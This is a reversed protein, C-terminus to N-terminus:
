RVKVRYTFMPKDDAIVHVLYTGRGSFKHQIIQTSTQADLKSPSLHVPNDAIILSIPLERGSNNKIHLTLKKDVTEIELQDPSQPLVKYRYSNSYVIPGNLFTKLPPTQDLLSWKTDAPYHNRIFYEPNSLFYAEDYKKIFNKNTLDIAGSAWTADCLYWKNNLQVATWSHNIVGDGGINAQITRGYGDVIEARIGALMSLERILYAYGTCVTRQKKLLTEFMRAQMKTNWVKLENANKLKGRNRQNTTFLTYDNEINDCVWKYIARFKMVEDPLDNTLRHSLLPLNRLAHGQYRAAVSDSASFDLAEFDNRQASLSATVTVCFLFLLAKHTMTLVTIKRTVM